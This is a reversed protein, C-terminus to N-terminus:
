KYCGKFFFYFLIILVLGVLIPIIFRITGGKKFEFVKLPSPSKSEEEQFHAEMKSVRNQFNERLEDPHNYGLTKFVPLTTPISEFISEKESEFYQNLGSSKWKNQVIEGGLVELAKPIVCQIAKGASVENIGSYGSIMRIIGNLKDGFIWSGPDEQVESFSEPLGELNGSKKKNVSQLAKSFIEQSGGEDAIKHIFGTFVTPIAGHIAKEFGGASEGLDYAMKKILDETIFEKVSNSLPFAM